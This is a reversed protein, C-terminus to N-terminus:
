KIGNTSLTGVDPTNPIQYKVTSLYVSSVKLNFYAFCPRGPSNLLHHLPFWTCLCYFFIRFFGKQLIRGTFMCGGKEVFDEYM